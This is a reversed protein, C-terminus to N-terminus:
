CARLLDSDVIGGNCIIIQFLDDALFPADDLLNGGLVAVPSDISPVAQGLLTTSNSNLGLVVCRASSSLLAFNSVGWLALQRTAREDPVICQLPRQISLYEAFLATAMLPSIGHFQEQNDNHYHEQESAASVPTAASTM